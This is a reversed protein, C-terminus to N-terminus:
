AVRNSEREWLELMALHLLEFQKTGEQVAESEVGNLKVGFRVAPVQNKLRHRTFFDTLRTYVHPMQEIRDALCYVKLRKNMLEERFRLTTEEKWDPGIWLPKYDMQAYTMETTPDYLLSEKTDLIFSHDNTAAIRFRDNKTCSKQNLLWVPLLVNFHSAHFRFYYAARQPNKEESTALPSPAVDSFVAELFDRDAADMRKKFNSMFGHVFSEIRINM